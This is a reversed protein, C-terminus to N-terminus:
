CTEMSWKEGSYHQKRNLMKTGMGAYNRFVDLCHICSVKRADLSMMALFILPEETHYIAEFLGAINTVNAIAM